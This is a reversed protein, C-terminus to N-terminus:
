IFIKIILLYKRKNKNILKNIKFKKLYIYWGVEIMGWFFGINM